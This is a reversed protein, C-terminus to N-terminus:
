TVATDTYIRFTCSILSVLCKNFKLGSTKFRCYPCFRRYYDTNKMVGNLHVLIKRKLSGRNMKFNNFCHRIFFKFVPCGDLYGVIYLM